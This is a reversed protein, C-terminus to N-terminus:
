LRSWRNASEGLKPLMRTLVGDKRIFHHYVAASVHVAILFLLVFALLGHVQLVRGSAANDPAVIAPLSFLGFVGLAPYLQVGYWGLIPVLLLMAYMSWHNVHSLIRQWPLLSQEPAPAGHTLRYVLRFVALFFIIVGLLKHTSYMSNTLTDWINYWSGRIVMAIGVPFQIALAAVVWWHFRRAQISYTEGRHMQM